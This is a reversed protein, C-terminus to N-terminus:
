RRFPSLSFVLDTRRLVRQAARLSVLSGGIEKLFSTGRTPISGFASGFASADPQHRGM